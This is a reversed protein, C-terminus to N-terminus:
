VPRLEAKLVRKTEETVKVSNDIRHGGLWIIKGHSLLVPSHWRKARSIKCNIFF